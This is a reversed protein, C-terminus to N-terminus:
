SWEAYNEKRLEYDQKKM